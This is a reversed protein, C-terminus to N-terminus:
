GSPSATIDTRAKESPTVLLKFDDICEIPLVAVLINQFYTIPLRVVEGCIKFFAISFFKSLQSDELIEEFTGSPSGLKKPLQAM